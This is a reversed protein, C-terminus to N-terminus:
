ARDHGEAGKDADRKGDSDIAKMLYHGGIQAAEGLIAGGIVIRALSAM